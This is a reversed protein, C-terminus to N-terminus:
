SLWRALDELSDNKYAVILKREVDTTIKAMSRMNEWPLVNLGHKIMGSLITWAGGFISGGRLQSKAISLDVRAPAIYTEIRRKVHLEIRLFVAPHQTFLDIELARHIRYNIVSMCSSTAQQIASKYSVGNPHIRYRLLMSNIREFHFLDVARLWLDHDEAHRYDRYGGLRVYVERRIMVSPHVIPKVSRLFLLGDRILSNDYPRMSASGVVSGNSDIITVDSCVIHTDPHSMLWTLEVGLRNPESIDDADMRAIFQGRCVLLGANLAAPLGAREKRILQIRPDDYSTIIEGSDDTSGDDVIIFEFDSFSQQLISDIAERLHKSGNHVAMLVSLTVNITSNSDSAPQQM